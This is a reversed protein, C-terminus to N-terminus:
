CTWHRLFEADTNCDIARSTLHAFVMGVALVTVVLVATGFGAGSLWKGTLFGLVVAAFLFGIHLYLYVRDRTDPDKGPSSVDILLQMTAIYLAALFLLLSAIALVQLWAPQVHHERRM